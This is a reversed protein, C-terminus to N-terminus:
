DSKRADEPLEDENEDIQYSIDAYAKPNEKTIIDPAGNQVIVTDAILLCNRNPRNDFNALSLRINFVMGDEIVRENDAKISLLDEKRSLGIGYGMIKPLHKLHDEKGASKVFEVVKNYVDSVKTGPILQDIMYKFLEVLFEYAEKQEAVPNILM